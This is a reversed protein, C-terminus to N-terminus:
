LPVGSPWVAPPSGSPSSAAPSTTDPKGSTSIGRRAPFSVPPLGRNAASPPWALPCSLKVTSGRASMALNDFYQVKTADEQQADDLPSGVVPVGGLYLWLKLFPQVINHGTTLIYWGQSQAATPLDLPPPPETAGQPFL